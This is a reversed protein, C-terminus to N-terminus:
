AYQKHIIAFYRNNQQQTEFSNRGEPTSQLSVESPSWGWLSWNQKPGKWLKHWHAYCGMLLTWRGLIYVHVLTTTCCLPKVTCIRTCTCLHKVCSNSRLLQKLVTMNNSPRKTIGHSVALQARHWFIEELFIEEVTFEIKINYDAPRSSLSWTAGHWEHQWKKKRLTALHTLFSLKIINFCIATCEHTKSFILHHSSYSYCDYEASWNKVYTLHWHSTVFAM